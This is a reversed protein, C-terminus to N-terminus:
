SENGCRMMRWSEAAKRWCRNIGSGRSKCSGRFHACKNRSGKKFKRQRKFSLQLDKKQDEADDVLIAM